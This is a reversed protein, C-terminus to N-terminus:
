PAPTSVNLDDVWYVNLKQNDTASTVYDATTIAPVDSGPAFEDSGNASLEYGCNTPTVYPGGVFVKGGPSQAGLSLKLRRAYMVQYRNGDVDGQAILDSLRYVGKVYSIDSGVVTTLAEAALEVKTASILRAITTKLDAGSAGAGEVTIRKGVDTQKFAATASALVKPNSGGATMAGDAVRVGFAAFVDDMLFTAGPM